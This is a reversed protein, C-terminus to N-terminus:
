GSLLRSAFVVIIVLTSLRDVHVSTPAPATKGGVVTPPLPPPPPPPALARAVTLEIDFRVLRAVRETVLKLENIAGVAFTKWAPFTWSVRCHALNASSNWVQNGAVAFWKTDKNITNVRAANLLLSTKNEFM